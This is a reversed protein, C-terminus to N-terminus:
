KQYPQWATESFPNRRRYPRYRFSGAGSKNGNAQPRWNTTSSNPLPASRPFYSTLLLFYSLQAAHPNYAIGSLLSCSIHFDIEVIWLVISLKQARDIVRWDARLDAVRPRNGRLDLRAVCRAPIVCPRRIGVSQVVEGDLRAVGPM